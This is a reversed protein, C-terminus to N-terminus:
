EKNDEKYLRKFREKNEAYIQEAKKQLEAHKEKYHSHEVWFQKMEDHFSNYYLQFDVNVRDGFDWDDSEPNKKTYGDDLVITFMFQPTTTRSNDFVHIVPYKMDGFSTMRIDFRYGHETFERICWGWVIALSVRETM